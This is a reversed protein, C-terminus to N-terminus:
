DAGTGDDIQRQYENADFQGQSEVILGEAGIKWDEFGSIRVHKGSGGPGTNHGDLTWHFEVRGAQLVLKDFTVRLDPFATMFERAANAIAARGEAPAGGNIALSAGAEFFEAVAKPNQSCWAAAYRSAFERLQSEDKV